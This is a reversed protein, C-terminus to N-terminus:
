SSEHKSSGVTSTLLVLLKVTRLVYQNFDYKTYHLKPCRSYGDRQTGTVGLQHVVERMAVGDDTQAAGNLYVARFPPRSLGQGTAISCGVGEFGEQDGVSKRRKGRGAGGGGGSLEAEEALSRLVRDLM